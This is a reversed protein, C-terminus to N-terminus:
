WLPDRSVHGGKNMAQGNAAGTRAPLEGGQKKAPCRLSRHTKAPAKQAQVALSRTRTKSGNVFTAAKLMM